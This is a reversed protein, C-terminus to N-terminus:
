EKEKVIEVINWKKMSRSSILHSLVICGFLLGATLLCEAIGSAFPYETEKTALQRLATVAFVAGLPTGIICSFVFYLLSQLFLKASVFQHSFGLTRLVCLEKKQELLNTQMTNVVIILGILVAFGIIIWAALDYFAFGKETGNRLLRTFICYRYDDRGALLAQVSREGERIATEDTEETRILIARFTPEGLKEAQRASIYQSRNVNQNSIGAVEMRVGDVLVLDGPVAGLEEALHKELLIGESPVSLPEDKIGFIRIMDTDEPLANVSATETHGQFSIDSTYYGMQLTESVYDLAELEEMFTQDPVDKLFVQCDYRIQKDFLETLIANKSAIFSLSAFIIMVSASLCFASFIFRKKNRLLSIISYRTFPGAKRTLWQGFGSLKGSSPPQRSMAESPQIRSILSTGSLTAAQGVVVTLLASFVANGTDFVNEYFPLPFFSEFESGIYRAIGISILTGLIIAGLSVPLNVKCFLLRIDGASFGLARLIGIERRSQRIILSMFLFGAILVVMFFVTPLLLTLTNVPPLVSDIRNKVASNEYLFSNQIEPVEEKLIRIAEELTEERDAGPTFRLLFENCFEQYGEWEGLEDYAAALEAQKEKLLAAAADLEKEGAAIQEAAADLQVRLEEAEAIGADLQAQKVNLLTYSTELVTQKTKLLTYAADLAFATGPEMEGAAIQEAAADLQEAAADLQARQEEAEAIGADLGTQKEQLAAEAQELEARQELLLERNSDLEQQKEELEEAKEELAAKSGTYETNEEQELLRIPVYIYGFDSNAGWATQTPQVALTEPMSVIGAVLYSRYEDGVRVSVTDGASIGNDDAFNVDLLIADKEVPDAKQWYHFRQFDGDSFSIARVSLYRGSPSMMVTDGLLRTNVESIGPLSRLLDAKDRTTVATQIVGDPYGYDRIYHTLSRELSLYGSALGTVSACGVASVLLISLLLKWYRKIIARFMFGKM